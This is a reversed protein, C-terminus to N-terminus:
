VPLTVLTHGDLTRIVLHDIDGRQTSVSGAVGAAGAYSATWNSAIEEQGDRGVAVLQCREGPRVGNLIVTVRTGTETATLVAQAHVTGDVASLAANAAHHEAQELGVAAGGAAVVLMAAAILLPRPVRRHQRGRSAEHRLREYALESPAPSGAMSTVDDATVLDLARTLDALERQTGTCRACESVHRQMDLHEEPELAGIILAGVAVEQPCRM